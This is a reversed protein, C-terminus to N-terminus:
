AKGKDIIEQVKELIIAVQRDNHYGDREARAHGAAAIRTRSAEDPLYRKIIAICEELSSFFLAEEGEVFRALHGETREALLFGGAGAVEFSKQTFEDLNSRTLFSLNIKSLWIAERYADDYLLGSTHIRAFAEPTLARSWHSARGSVSVPIGAESLKTLFGAREDYPTGVFSVERNRDADSWGSPPPYHLTPEYATQIKVVNRAGAELYQPINIDRQTVHLDFLPLDKRYLRWGPDRRPGFFNDIMYSVSIIGLKRMRNLTSPQLALVKDAWFVDPKHTEALAVLDRNLRNVQPGAALRFSIKRILDPQNKEYPTINFRILEHGQRELALARTTASSGAGLPGAYLIKM